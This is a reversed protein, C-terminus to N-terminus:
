LSRLIDDPARSPRALARLIDIDAVRSRRLEILAHVALGFTEPALAPPPAGVSHALDDAHVSLEIVRTSLYEVLPTAVLPDRRVVVLTRGPLHVAQEILESRAATFRDVVNRWGRGGVHHGDTRITVHVDRDLDDADRLRANAYWEGLGIVSTGAPPTEGALTRIGHRLALFAHGALDGVSMRPLASADSWHDGVAPLRLIEEAQAAADLLAAIAGQSTIQLM